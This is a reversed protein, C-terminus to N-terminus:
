IKHQNSFAKAFIQTHIQSLCLFFNGLPSRQEGKGFLFIAFLGHM